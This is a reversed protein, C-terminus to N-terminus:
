QLANVFQHLAFPFISKGHDAWGSMMRTRFVGDIAKANVVVNRNSCVIQNLFPFLLSDSNNIPVNMMPITSLMDHLIIAINQKNRNMPVISTSIIRRTIIPVKLIISLRRCFAGFNINWEIKNILIILIIIKLRGSIILINIQIM